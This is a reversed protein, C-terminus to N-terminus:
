NKIPRAGKRNSKQEKALELDVPYHYWRRYASTPLRHRDNNNYTAIIQLNPPLKFHNADIKNLLLQKHFDRHSMRQDYESWGQDDQDLLNHFDYFVEFYDRTSLNKLVLLFNQDPTQFAKIFFDITDQNIWQNSITQSTIEVIHSRHHPNQNILQKLSKDSLPYDSWYIKHYNKM